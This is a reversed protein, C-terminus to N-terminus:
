QSRSPDYWPAFRKTAWRALVLLGIGVLALALVGVFAEPHRFSRANFLIFFGLGDISILFEAVVAAVLARGSALRFGALLYPVSSPLVVGFWVARRPARYTRAVEIYRESVAQTGDYVSLVMPFYAAFIVIALRATGTYGAWLTMLPVVAVMPLAFLAYTHGKLAWGVWRIQGMALGILVAFVTAILLGQVIPVMTAGFASWFEGSSLVQPLAQIIGSPRAVFPPAVFPLIAEWAGLLLLGVAVKARLGYPIRALWARRPQSPTAATVAGGTPPETTEPSSSSISM